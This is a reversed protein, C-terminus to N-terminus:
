EARSGLTAVHLPIKRFTCLFSLLEDLKKVTAYSNDPWPKRCVGLGCSWGVAVMALRNDVAHNGAGEHRGERGEADDGERWEMMRPMMARARAGGENKGRSGRWRGQALRNARENYCGEIDMSRGEERPRRTRARAGLCFM